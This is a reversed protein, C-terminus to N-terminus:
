CALPRLGVGLVARGIPRRSHPNLQCLLRHASIHRYISIFPTRQQTSLNFYVTHASTDIFQFLRHASNHRYISIFPTRQQTSLNFYVVDTNVLYYTRNV